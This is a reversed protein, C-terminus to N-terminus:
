VSDVSSLREVRYRNYPIYPTRSLDNDTLVRTRNPVVGDGRGMLWDICQKNQVDSVNDSVWRKLWTRFRTAKQKTVHPHSQLLFLECKFSILLDAANSRVISSILKDFELECLLLINYEGYTHGKLHLLKYITFILHVSLVLYRYSFYYQPINNNM